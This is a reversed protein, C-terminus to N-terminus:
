KTYAEDFNPVPAAIRALGEEPVKQAQAFDRLAVVLTYVTDYIPDGGAGSPLSPSSSAAQFADRLAM